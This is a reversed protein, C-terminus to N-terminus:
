IGILGSLKKDFVLEFINYITHLITGIYLGTVNKTDDGIKDGKEKFYKQILTTTFHMVVTIIRLLLAGGLSAGSMLLTIMYQILEIGSFIGTYIWPYDGKIAINKVVEETIPGIIISGVVMGIQPSILTIPAIINVGIAFMIIFLVLSRKVKSDTIISLSEDSDKIFENIVDAIKKTISKVNGRKLDPTISRGIKHAKIELKKVDIGHDKLVRKIIKMNHNYAKKSKEILPAVKKNKFSFNIEQIYENYQQENLGMIDLYQTYANVLTYTNEM